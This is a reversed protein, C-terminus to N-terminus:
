RILPARRYGSAEAVHKAGIIEVQELDAITRALRLVRHYGRASLRLKEAAQTLLKKGEADPTAVADLVEGDAHANLRLGTVGTRAYRAAQLDRAAAIRAAVERSGEKPPPLSLDAASVAAVEIQVDIRDMLPGSIRAQYDLGCNPARSCAMAPDSLYGCKCPNMAAVLQVRSPYRAHANARAVVTEGTELPQRLSELVPRSFEPLEDLFLVGNHALSVEGPLANKGGGVIAPMSASHHPARYPRLMSVRGEEILGALSHILSTELAEEASLPPLIGPLRAALMSKGAGPPGIMMMNHGGAAAVELARRANEQGKVDALDPANADASAEGPQPATLSQKGNLHNILALLTPPALVDVAGVWAAEPGCQAPCILGREKEAALLAAPMAGLVPNLAGDLSLEGLTVYHGSEDSPIAEMASLLALAIPLDYHSGVKPLDAPALNVTIRKAPLALGIANLAARVREKAESVAKDPLGVINFAPLGSSLQCQVDVERAEVGIFAATYAHSTM